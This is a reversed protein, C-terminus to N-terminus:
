IASLTLQAIICEEDTPIVCVEVKSNKSSIIRENALNKSEDIDVGLWALHDCIQKRVKAAYQGIGATFVIADLGGIAPILSALQRAANYCFLEIAFKANEDDSALLDRIDSSIGSVGKLGSEHYLLHKLNDLPMRKEEQLYLLIGPDISGTRTGMMLGDLATFGMTTAKSQLNHMACMSAGNGLHAVIVKEFNQTYEPLVSAIYQYSLGHFGYRIIGDDAYQQPLAFTEALRSQTRHFATDFCAVQPINKYERACAEIVAINYPQHLPALPILAKLKQLVSADIRVPASFEKGGHVVRHGIAQINEGPLNAKFWSFLKGLATEFGTVFGTEEFIVAKNADYIKFHPHNSVGDIGGTLVVGNGVNFLSFKISSSGANLTLITKQM